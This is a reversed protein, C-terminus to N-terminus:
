YLQGGGKEKKLRKRKRENEKTNGEKGRNKM